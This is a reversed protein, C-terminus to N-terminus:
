SFHQAVYNKDNDSDGQQDFVYRRLVAQGRGQFIPDNGSYDVAVGDGGYFFDGELNTEAEM